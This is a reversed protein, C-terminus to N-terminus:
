QARVQGLGDSAAGVQGQVSIGQTFHDGDYQGPGRAKARSCGCLRGSIWGEGEGEDKDGNKRVKWGTTGAHMPTLAKKGGKQM